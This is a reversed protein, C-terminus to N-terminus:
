FVSSRQSTHQPASRTTVGEGAGVCSRLRRRRTDISCDSAYAGHQSSRNATGPHGDTSAVSVGCGTAPRGAGRTGACGGRQSIGGSSGGGAPASGGGLGAAASRDVSHPGGREGRASACDAGAYDAGGGPK